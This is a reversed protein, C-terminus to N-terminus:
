KLCNECHTKRLHSNELLQFSIGGEGFPEFVKCFRDRNLNIANLMITRYDAKKVMKPDSLTLNLYYFLLDEDVDISKVKKHLLKKAWDYKSYSSFYQALSLYDGTSLPLYKYNSYIYRLARDKNQFEERAMYHESM